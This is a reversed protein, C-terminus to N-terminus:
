APSSFLSWPLLHGSTKLFNTLFWFLYVQILSVDCNGLVFLPRIPPPPLSGYTKTYGLGSMLRSVRQLDLMPQHDQWSMSHSSLPLLRRLLSSLLGHIFITLFSPSLLHSLLTSFHHAIDCLMSVFCFNLLFHSTPTSPQGNEPGSIALFLPAGKLKLCSLGSPFLPSTAELAHQYVRGPGTIPPTHVEKGRFTRYFQTSSWRFGAQRLYILYLLEPTPFPNYVGSTGDRTETRKQWWRGHIQITKGTSLRYCTKTSPVFLFQQAWEPVWVHLARFHVNEMTISFSLPNRWLLFHM